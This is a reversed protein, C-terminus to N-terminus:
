WIGDPALLQLCLTTNLPLHLIFWNCKLVWIKRVCSWLLVAQWLIYYVTVNYLAELLSNMSFRVSTLVDESELAIMSWLLNRCTYLCIGISMPMTGCLTWFMMYLIICYCCAYKHSTIDNVQNCCIDVALCVNNEAM